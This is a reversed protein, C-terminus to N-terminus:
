FYSTYDDSRVLYDLYGPDMKGTPAFVCYSPRVIGDHQTVGLGRNWALMINVVLDNIRCIKYGVLSDARSIPEGEEVLDARPSVGTYASM